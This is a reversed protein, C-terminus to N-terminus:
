ILNVIYLTCMWDAVRHVINVSCEVSANLVLYGNLRYLWHESSNCRTLSLLLQNDPPLLNNAM